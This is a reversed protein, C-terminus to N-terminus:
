KERKEIGKKNGSKSLKTRFDRIEKRKRVEGENDSEENTDM